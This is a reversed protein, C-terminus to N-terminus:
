RERVSQAGCVVDQGGALVTGDTLVISSMASATHKRTQSRVAETGVARHWGVAVVELEPLTPRM